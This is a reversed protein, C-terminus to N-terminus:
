WGYRTPEAEVRTEVEDGAQNAAQAERLLEELEASMRQFGRLAARLREELADTAETWAAQQRQSENITRSTEEASSRRAQAHASADAILREAEENAERVRRTAYGDAEDRLSQAKTRSEVLIQELEETLWGTGPTEADYAQRRLTMVEEHADRRIREADEEAAGLIAAVEHAVDGSGEEAVSQDTEGEEEPVDQPASEAPLDPPPEAAESETVPGASPSFWSNSGVATGRESSIPEPSSVNERPRRRIRLM